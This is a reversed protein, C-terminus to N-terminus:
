CHYFNMYNPKNYTGLFELKVANHFSSSISNKMVNTM